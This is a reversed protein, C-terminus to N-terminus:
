TRSSKPIDLRDRGPIIRDPTKLRFNMRLSESDILFFREVDRFGIAAPVLNSDLILLHSSFKWGPLDAFAFDFPVIWAPLTQSGIATGITLREPPTKPLLGRHRALDRGVQTLSAGTDFLFTDPTSRIRGNHGLFLNLELRCNALGPSGRLLLRQFYVSFSLAPSM